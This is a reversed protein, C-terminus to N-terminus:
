MGGTTVGSTNGVAGGPAQVTRDIRLKRRGRNKKIKESSRERDENRGVALGAPQQQQLPQNPLKPEPMEPMKPKSFMCM